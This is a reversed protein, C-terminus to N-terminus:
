DPNRACENSPLHQRTPRPSRPPIKFISFAFTSHRISAENLQKVDSKPRLLITLTNSM